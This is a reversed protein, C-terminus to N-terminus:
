GSQGIAPDNSMAPPYSPPIVITHDSGMRDAGAANKDGVILGIKSANGAQGDFIPQDLRTAGRIAQERIRLLLGTSNKRREIRARVNAFIKLSSIRTALM